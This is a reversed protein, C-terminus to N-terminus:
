NRNLDLGPNNNFNVNISRQLVQPKLNRQKRVHQIEKPLAKGTAQYKTQIM